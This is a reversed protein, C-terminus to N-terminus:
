LPLVTRGRKQNIIIAFAEYLASAGCIIGVYGAITHVAHSGSFNAIALLAFLVTLTGFIIKGILAGEWIAFAMFGTFVGWMTLYWGMAVPSAPEIGMLPGTWIFVLSLWFAGYSTFAVGGFLNNNKWELIGALIQCIGGYFIGMSMIMVSLEFFGANHINLLITTMGFGALGLPAPNVKVETSM